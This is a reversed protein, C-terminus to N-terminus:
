RGYAGIGSGVGIMGVGYSGTREGLASPSTATYDKKRKKKSVSSKRSGEGSSYGGGSLIEGDDDVYGEGYGEFSHEDYRRKRGTRKPRVVEGASPTGVIMSMGNLHGNPKKSNVQPQSSSKMKQEPILPQTKLKEHGLVNEWEDNKPITGPELKMAKELKALIATPLGKQIERGFIKQNQWEEDPWQMLEMLGGSKGEEQKVAKNRGALGLNKVQGEYSRRMKNIKDGTIPDSRAVTAALPQLGCLTLLDQTPHPQPIRHVERCLLYPVGGDKGQAASQPIIHSSSNSQLSVDYNPEEVGTRVDEPQDISTDMVDPLGQREPLRQEEIDIEMAGSHQTDIAQGHQKTLVETTATSALKNM